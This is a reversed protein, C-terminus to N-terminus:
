SDKRVLYLRRRLGFDTLRGRFEGVFGDVALKVGRFDESTYDDFAMWGGVVLKEFVWRACFSMSEKLDCDVLALCFPGSLGPLTEQFYGRVPRVAETLGLKQLKRCVYEYSTSAHADDKQNSLRLEREKRLENRNFGQFSDCAYVIKPIQRARLWRALIIATGCRSSGLEILDGPLRAAEELCEILDDLGSPDLNSEFNVLSTHYLSPFSLLLRNLAPGPIIRKLKAKWGM